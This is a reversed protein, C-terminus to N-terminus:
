KEKIIEWRNEDEIYESVIATETKTEAFSEFIEMAKEKIDGIYLTEETGFLYKGNMYSLKEVKFM